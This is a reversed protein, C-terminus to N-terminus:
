IPLCEMKTKERPKINIINQKPKLTPNPTDPNQTLPDTRKPKIDLLEVTNVYLCFDYTENLTVLVMKKLRQTM